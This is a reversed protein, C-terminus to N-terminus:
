KKISILRNEKIQNHTLDGKYFWVKVGIIGYITDAEAFGYQINAKLTHLPVKGSKYVESRAMEAGGLRGSCIIKVGKIGAATAFTLAKKMARRFSIRKKLQAVISEAVLQADADPKKIEVVDISVACKAIEEVQDSLKTIETGRRGIVVGPKSVHVEVRLKEQTRYIIIDSVGAHAIAKKVCERVKFDVGIFNALDKKDAYWQSKWNRFYCLRFGLTHTKQGM